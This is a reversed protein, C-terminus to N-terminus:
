HFQFYDDPCIDLYRQDGRIIDSAKLFYNKQFKVDAATILESTLSDFQSPYLLIHDALFSWGFGSVDVVEILDDEVLPVPVFSTFNYVQMDYELLQLKSLDYGIKEAATYVLNGVATHDKHCTTGHRPDFTLILDPKFSSIKNAMWDVMADAGGLLSAWNQLVGATSDATGDGWNELDLEANLHVAANQMELIRVAAVDPYCGGPLKCSGRDGQTLVILKCNANQNVCHEGLFPAAFYEDDPHAGVWLISPGSPSTNSYSNGGGGGGCGGAVAIFFIFFL